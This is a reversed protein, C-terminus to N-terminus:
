SLLNEVSSFYLGKECLERQFITDFKLHRSLELRKCFTCCGLSFQESYSSIHVLLM